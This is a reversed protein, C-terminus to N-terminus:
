QQSLRSKVIKSISSMDARGQAQPKVMGMVKGMDAMGSAGTSNIALDVLETIETDSLPAPLFDALVELELKEQDALDTRGASEFQEIADRRQKVMKDLAALARQDDLSKEDVEIRKLEALALRITGLRPKDRNRMAEKMAETLQDRVICDSM